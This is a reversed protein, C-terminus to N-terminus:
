PRRGKAMCEFHKVTRMADALVEVKGEPTHQEFAWKNLSEARHCLMEMNTAVLRLLVNRHYVGLVQAPYEEPDAKHDDERQEDWEILRLISAAGASLDFVHDAFKRVASGPLSAQDVEDRSLRVAQFERPKPGQGTEQTQTTATSENKAM